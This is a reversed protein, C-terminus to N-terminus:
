LNAAISQLEQLSPSPGSPNLSPLLAKKRGDAQTRLLVRNQEKTFRAPPPLPLGPNLRIAALEASFDAERDRKLAALRRREREAEKAEIPRRLAAQLRRLANFDEDKFRFTGPRPLAMVPDREVAARAEALRRSYEERADALERKRKLLAADVQAAPDDAKVIVVKYGAREVFDRKAKDHANRKADHFKAGNAEFVLRLQHVVFDVQYRGIRWEPQWKWKTRRLAKAVEAELFSPERAPRQDFGGCGRCVWHFDHLRGRVRHRRLHRVHFL